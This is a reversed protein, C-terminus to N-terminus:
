SAPTRWARARPRGPRSSSGNPSVADAAFEISYNSAAVWHIIRTTEYAVARDVGREDLDRICAELQEMTFRSPLPDLVLAAIENLM